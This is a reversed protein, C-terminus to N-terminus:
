WCSRGSCSQTPPAAPALDTRCRRRHDPLRGLDLAHGGAPRDRCCLRHRDPCADHVLWRVLRHGRRGHPAVVPLDCRLDPLSRRTEAFCLAVLFQGVFVIPWTWFFAPGGFSFGLGFLQFITTLISVFSFGAAFSAFTGLSRHLQQTYGFESLDDADPTRGAGGSVPASPPQATATMPSRGALPGM